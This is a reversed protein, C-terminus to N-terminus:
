EPCEIRPNTDNFLGEPNRKWAWVHLAWASFPGPPEILPFPHMEHGLVSPADVAIAVFEVAVLHDKNGRKEYVLVEPETYDVDGDVLDFNAYHFGMGPVCHDERHYGDQKAKESNHYKATAERLENLKQPDVDGMDASGVGSGVVIAGAAGTLKLVKRRSVSPSKKMINERNNAFRCNEFQM